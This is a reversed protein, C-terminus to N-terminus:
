RAATVFSIAVILALQRQVPLRVHATCRRSFSVRPYSDTVSGDNSRAVAAVSATWGDLKPRGTAATHVAGSM